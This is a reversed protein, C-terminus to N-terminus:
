CPRCFVPQEFDLPTIEAADLLVQLDPESADLSKLLSRVYSTPVTIAKNM